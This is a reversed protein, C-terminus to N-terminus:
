GWLKSLVVGVCQASNFQNKWRVKVSCRVWSFVFVSHQISSASFPLFFFSGSFVLFRSETIIAFILLRLVLFFRRDAFNFGWLFKFLAVCYYKLACTWIWWESTKTANWYWGKKLWGSVVWIHKSDFMGCIWNSILIVVIALSGLNQSRFRSKVLVFYYTHSGTDNKCSFTIAATM